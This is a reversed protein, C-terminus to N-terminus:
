SVPVISYFDIVYTWFNSFTFIQITAEANQPHSECLPSLFFGFLIFTILAVSILGVVWFLFKQIKTKFIKTLKGNVASFLSYCML